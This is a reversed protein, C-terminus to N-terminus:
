RDAACRFGVTGARDKSPSMLLYKAHESLRAPHPFYWMSGQPQYYGSGRLIAARTHDDIYEDTWQFINGIMDMVGFPSAGSPHSTVPSPGNMTRGTQPEPMANPRPDNGWPFRRGDLGQAAYQWEWEHPLRKGAWAAYARADELSVWTVPKDDWGQPYRGNTWDRLFNHADKPHYHAAELFEAFRANTVPFKDLYFSPIDLSHRHQRRPSNEWPYQVDVGEKNEGEIEIGSVVFDYHAAPIPLMGAPASQYSRTKAIPMMQQPLARWESSYAHLPKSGIQKMEDIFPQLEKPKQTTRLVAAYGNAEFPFQLIDKAGDTVPKLEQGTMLEYYAAGDRHEVALIHGNVDYDNRNILTWLTQDDGPFESAFIGFQLAPVAPKWSQSVLLTPFRRYVKSIRRLAESDRPTIGNWIGWVNEWSVYGVGNFFAAQLNNTRNTAWRDCVNVMHRPELIKLASVLPEFPYRWYGWSQQDWKLFEDSDMAIEPQFSIPHGTKDSAVRYALPVGHFTDGNVGDAGIEAMLKAVADWLKLGEDRTGTEWPMMPFFVRVHRRHFDQVVKRLAPIGGPLDRTLDFQNRNDIGVNPYVPWLLVGDIGGYRKDVDDLFRDVTYRGTNVDYFFRDEVMAQPVIFNQQTWLLEPRRYQADDYGVRILRENRWQDIEHLWAQYEAGTVSHPNRVDPQGTVYGPPLILNGDLHIQTLQGNM